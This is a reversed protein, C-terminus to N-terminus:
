PRQAYQRDFVAELDPYSGRLGDIVQKAWDYYARRRELSWDRPPCDAVDRLNAIKDALKVARARTSLAPAHTIQAKKREPKPLRQDDSVEMVIRAIVTGFANALEAETTETDEITDHLLAGCITELDTIQGEAVLIGALTIPHNIYPSAEPDKRRQNKHKDAAFALARMLIELQDTSM